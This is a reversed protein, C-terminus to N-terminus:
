ISELLGGQRVVASLIDTMTVIGVLSHNDDLVPMAGLKEHLMLKAIDTIRATHQATLVEQTMMENIKIQESQYVKLFDRDSVIGVLVGQRNVVPVHRISYKDFLARLSSSDDDQNLTHVPSSMLDKAYITARDKKFRADVQEFSKIKHNKQAPGNDQPYAPDDDNVQTLPVEPSKYVRSIRDFHSLDPLTYPQFQGNYSVVFSVQNEMEALFVENLDLM